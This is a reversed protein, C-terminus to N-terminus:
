IYCKNCQLAQAAHSSGVAVDVLMLWQEAAAKSCSRLHQLLSRDRTSQRFTALKHSSTLTQSHTCYRRNIFHTEATALHPRATGSCVASNGTLPCGTLQSSSLNCVHASEQAMDYSAIQGVANDAASSRCHQDPQTQSPYRPLLVHSIDQAASHRQQANSKVNPVGCSSTQMQACYPCVPQSMYSQLMQTDAHLQESRRNSFCAHQDAQQLPWSLITTM